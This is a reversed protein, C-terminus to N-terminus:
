QEVDKKYLTQLEDVKKKNLPYILLFVIGILLIQFM